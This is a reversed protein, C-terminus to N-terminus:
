AILVDTTHAHQQVNKCETIEPACHAPRRATATEIDTTIGVANSADPSQYM